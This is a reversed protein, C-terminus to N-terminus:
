KVTIDQTGLVVFNDGSLRGIQMTLQGTPLEPKALRVDIISNYYRRTSLFTSLKNAQNNLPFVMKNGEGVFVAYYGGYIQNVPIQANLIEIQITNPEETITVTEVNDTGSKGKFLARNLVALEAPPTYNKFHVRGIFLIDNVYKMIGPVFGAYNYPPIPLKQYTTIPAHDDPYRSEAGNRYYFYRGNNQWNVMTIAMSKRYNAVDDFSAYYSFLNFGFALTISLRLYKKWNQARIVNFFSLYFLVFLILAVSKYRTMFAQELGQSARSVAFAAGSLSVFIFNSLLFLNFKFRRMMNQYLGYFWNNPTTNKIQFYAFTFLLVALWGVLMVGGVIATTNKVLINYFQVTSDLPSGFFAFFDGIILHPYETFNKGVDPRIGPNKYDYFYTVFCFIIFSFWQIKENKSRLYLVVPIAALYSFMGNGNTFMSVFCLFAAAYFYVPKTTFILLYLAWIGFILTINPQLVTMAWFINEIPQINFVIFVIPALYALGVNLQRLVRYFVFPLVLLYAVGSLMLFKYNIEGFIAHSLLTSCRGYLIRHECMQSFLLHLKDQWTDQQMWSALFGEIGHFDDAYGVNLAYIWFFVFFVVIPLLVLFLSSFKIKM